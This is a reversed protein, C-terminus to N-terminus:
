LNVVTGPWNVNPRTVAAVWVANNAATPIEMVATNSVGNFTYEQGYPEGMTGFTPPTLSGFTILQIGSNTFAYADIFTVAAPITISTLSPCYAFASSGISTLTAPLTISILASQYFMLPSLSTLSSPITISTIGCGYSFCGPGMSTINPLSVALYSCGMFVYAGISLLGSPLGVSTLDTCGSFLYDPLATILPPFNIYAIARCGDFTHIGISTLSTPLDVTYLSTCGAFVYAALTTLGAPLTVTRLSTCGQFVNNGISTVGDITVTTLNTCGNFLNDPLSTYVGSSNITVNVLSSAGAFAGAGLSSVLRSDIYTPITLVEPLIGTYGVLVNNSDLILYYAPGAVYPLTPVSAVYRNYEEPSTETAGVIENIVLSAGVPTGFFSKTNVTNTGNIIAQQAIVASGFVARQKARSTTFSASKNTNSM